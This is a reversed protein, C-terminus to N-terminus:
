MAPMLKRAGATYPNSMCVSCLPYLISGWHCAHADATWGPCFSDSIFFADPFASHIPVWLTDVSRVTSAPMPLIHALPTSLEKFATHFHVMPSFDCERSPAVFISQSAQLPRAALIRAVSPDPNNTLATSLYHHSDNAPDALGTHFGWGLLSLSCSWLWM